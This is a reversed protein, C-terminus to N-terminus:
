DKHVDNRQTSFEDSPVLTAPVYDSLLTCRKRITILAKTNWLAIIKLKDHHLFIQSLRKGVNCAFRPSTGLVLDNPERSHGKRRSLPSHHSPFRAVSDLRM